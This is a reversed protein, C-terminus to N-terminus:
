KDFWGVIYELREIRHWAEGSRSLEHTERPFVVMATPRKLYKLARFLQEGGSDQPTRFDSEGLVFLVPTHRSTEPRFNRSPLKSVSSIVGM